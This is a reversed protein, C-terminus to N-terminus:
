RVTLGWATICMLSAFWTAGALVRYWRQDFDLPMEQEM